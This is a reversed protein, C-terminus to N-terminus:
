LNWSARITGLADEISFSRARAVEVFARAAHLFHRDLQVGPAVRAGSRCVVILGVAELEGYARAVTGPAVRLDGALQRISPLRTAEVLEGSRILDALQSRIQEFPATPSAQDVIIM